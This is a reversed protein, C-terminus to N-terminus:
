GSACIAFVTYTAAPGDNGVHVTWATNNASPYSERASADSGTDVRLGGGTVRQGPDCTATTANVASDGSSSAAAVTAAATKYTLALAVGAGAGPPGQPGAPGRQGRLSARAAASLDRVGLSRDRVERSGVSSARLQKTGVSNRPLQVAAYSTGGLAISLALTATVNAYTLRHRLRGIM